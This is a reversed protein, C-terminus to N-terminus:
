GAARDPDPSGPSMSITISVIAPLPLDRNFSGVGGMRGTNGERPLPRARKIGAAWTGLSLGPARFVWAGTPLTSTGTGGPGLGLGTCGDSFMGPAPLPRMWFGWPRVEGRLREKLENLFFWRHNPNTPEFNSKYM